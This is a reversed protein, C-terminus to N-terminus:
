KEEYRQSLNVPLGAGAQSFRAALTPSAKGHTTGLSHIEGGSQSVASPSNTSSSSSSWTSSSLAAMSGRSLLFRSLTLLTRMDELFLVGGGRSTETLSVLPLSIGTLSLAGIGFLHRHTFQHLLFVCWFDRLRVRGCWSQLVNPKWLSLSSVSSLLYCTRWAGPVSCDIWAYMCSTCPCASSDRSPMRQKVWKLEVPMQGSWRLLLLPFASHITLTRSALM